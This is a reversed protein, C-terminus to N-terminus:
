RAGVLRLLLWGGGAAVLLTAWMWLNFKQLRTM